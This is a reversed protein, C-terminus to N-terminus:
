AAGVENCSYPIVVGSVQAIDKLKQGAIAKSVIQAGPKEGFLTKEPPGQWTITHYEAKQALGAEQRRM